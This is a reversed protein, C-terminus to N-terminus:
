ETTAADEPAGADPNGPGGTFRIDDIAFDMLYAPDVGAGPQIPVWQFRIGIKAPNPTTRPKGGLLQAWTYSYTAPATATATAPVTVLRHPPMCDFYQNGTTLPCTAGFYTQDAGQDVVPNDEGNFVQFDITGTPGVNGGLTFQVGTFASADVLCLQFDVVAAAFGALNGVIHWNNGSYDEIAGGDNAAIGYTYVTGHPSVQTQGNTFDIILPDTLTMPTCPPIPPIEIGGAGGQGGSGGSGTPTGGTGTSGGRGGRGGSGGSGTSNSSSGCATMALAFTTAVVIGVGRSITSAGRRLM